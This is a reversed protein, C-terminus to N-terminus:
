GLRAADSRAATGAKAMAALLEKVSFPKQLFSVRDLGAITAMAEERPLSSMLVAPLDDRRSRLDKLVDAGSKRPMMLDVVLLSFPSEAHRCLAAEGDASLEVEHGEQTLALHLFKRILPEDDAVLIRHKNPEAPM